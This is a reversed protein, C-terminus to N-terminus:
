LGLYRVKFCSNLLGFNEDDILYLIGISFECRAIGKALLRQGHNTNM